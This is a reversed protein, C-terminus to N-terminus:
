ESALFDNNKCHISIYGSIIMHFEKRKFLTPFLSVTLGERSQLPAAIADCRPAQQLAVAAGNSLFPWMKARKESDFVGCSKRKMIAPIAKRSRFLVFCDKWSCALTHEDFGVLAEKTESIM